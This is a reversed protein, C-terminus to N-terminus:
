SCCSDPCWSCVWRWARASWTPRYHLLCPCTDLFVCPDHVGPHADRVLSSIDHWPTCIYLSSTCTNRYWVHMYRVTARWTLGGGEYRYVASADQWTVSYSLVVELSSSNTIDVHTLAGTLVYESVIRDGAYAINLQYQTALWYTYGYAASAAGQTPGLPNGNDAVSYYYSSYTDGELLARGDAMLDGDAEESSGGGSRTGRPEPVKTGAESPWHNDWEQSFFGDPLQQQQQQQQQQENGQQLHVVGDQQQQQLQNPPVVQVLGIPYTLAVDNGLFAQM